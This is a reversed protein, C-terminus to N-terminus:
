FVSKEWSIWYWRRCFKDIWSTNLGQGM